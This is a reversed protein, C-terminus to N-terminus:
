RAAAPTKLSIAQPHGFDEALAVAERAIVARGQVVGQDVNLVPAFVRKFDDVLEADVGVVAVLTVIDDQEDIAHRHSNKQM